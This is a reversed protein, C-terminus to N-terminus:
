PAISHTHSPGLHTHGVGYRCGFVRAGNPASSPIITGTAPHTVPSADAVGDISVTGIGNVVFGLGFGAGCEFDTTGVPDVDSRIRTYSAFARNAAAWADARPGPPRPARLAPPPSSLPAIPLPLPCPLFPFPHFLLSDHSFSALVKSPLSPTSHL